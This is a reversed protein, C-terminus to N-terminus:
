YRGFRKVKDKDNLNSQNSSVWKATAHGVELGRSEKMANISEYGEDMIDAMGRLYQNHLSPYKYVLSAMETIFANYDLYPKSSKPDFDCVEMDGTDTSSINTEVELGAFLGEKTDDADWKLGSRSVTAPLASDHISRFERKIPGEEALSCGHVRDVM